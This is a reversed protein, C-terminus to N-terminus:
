RVTKAYHRTLEDTWDESRHRPQGSLQEALTEIHQHWAALLAPRDDALETPLTQTLVVRTGGPGNGLEWRVRGGTAAPYDYELVAPPEAITIAGAPVRDITSAAPAPGGVAATDDTLAAWTDEPPVPLQREFRLLWGDPRQQIEGEALDFADVYHEHLEAHRSFAGVPRESLRDELADLCQHWGAAYSAAAPRDDFTHTFILICGEGDPHLEFRLLESAWTYAFVHPPDLETIAGDLTPGAGDPFVFDIRGGVAFREINLQAPFWSTLYDPDTVARWVRELPCKLRREFRLVPRGDVTSLTENV